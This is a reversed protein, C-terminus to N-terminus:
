YRATYLPLHPLSEEREGGDKDSQELVIEKEVM